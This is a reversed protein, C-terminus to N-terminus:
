APIDADAQNPLLRPSGSIKDINPVTWRLQEPCELLITHFICQGQRFMVVGLQHRTDLEFTSCSSKDTDSGHTMEFSGAAYKLHRVRQCKIGSDSRVLHSVAETHPVVTIVIPARRRSIYHISDNYRLNRGVRPRRATPTIKVIKEFSALM